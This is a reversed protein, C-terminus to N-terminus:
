FNVWRVFYYTDISYKGQTLILIKLNHCQQYLLSIEWNIKEKWNSILQDVSDM